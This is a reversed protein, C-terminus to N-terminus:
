RYNVDHALGETNGMCLDERLQQIQCRYGAEQLRTRERTLRQSPTKEEGLFSKQEGNCNSETTKKIGKATESSVLANHRRLSPGFLQNPRM